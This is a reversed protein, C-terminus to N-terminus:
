SKEMFIVPLCSILFYCMWSFIKLAFTINHSEVKSRIIRNRKEKSLVLINRHYEYLKGPLESSLSDVQLALSWTWDRPWSSGRSFPISIWELMRAQSIGHVSSGPPCTWPTVFFQVHSLSEVCVTNIDHSMEELACMRIAEFKELVILISVFFLVISHLRYKRCVEM